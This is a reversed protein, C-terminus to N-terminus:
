PSRRSPLMLRSGDKDRSIPEAISGLTKPEIPQTPPDVQSCETQVTNVQLATPVSSLTHRGQSLMGHRATVLLQSAVAIETAIGLSVWAYIYNCAYLIMMAVSCATILAGCEVLVIVTSRYPSPSLITHTRKQAIYLRICIPIAVCLNLVTILAWLLMNVPSFSTSAVPTTACIHITIASAGAITNVVPIHSFSQNAYLNTCDLRRVDIFFLYCVAPICVTISNDHLVCLRWIQDHEERKLLTAPLYSTCLGIISLSVNINFIVIHGVIYANVHSLFPQINGVHATLVIFYLIAHLILQITCLLFQVTNTFLLLRRIANNIEDDCM